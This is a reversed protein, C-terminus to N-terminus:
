HARHIEIGNFGARVAREAAATFDDYLDKIENIQLEHVGRSSSRGVPLMGTNKESTQAEAHTIQAVVLTRSRLM